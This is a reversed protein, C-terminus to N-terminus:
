GSAALSAVFVATGALPAVVLLPRRQLVALVVFAPVAFSGLLLGLLTWLTLNDTPERQLLASLSTLAIVAGTTLSARLALARWREREPDVIVRPGVATLGPRGPHGAM